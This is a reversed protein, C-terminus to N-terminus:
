AHVGEFDGQDFERLTVRPGVLLVTSHESGQRM